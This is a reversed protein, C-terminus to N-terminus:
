PVILQTSAFRRAMSSSARTPSLSSGSVWILFMPTPLCCSTSIALASFLDTFSSMRSSGVAASLSVSDCCRSSRMRPSLLRPMADIMIECLSLSISCTESEMVIIRSPLVISVISTLASPTSSFRMMRPMTPRTSSFRKGSRVGCMPSTNKSTFFQVTCCGNLASRRTTLFELKVTRRPSTTPNAPSM